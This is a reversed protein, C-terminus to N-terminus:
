KTKTKIAEDAQDFRDEAIRKLVFECRDFCRPSHLSRRAKTEKKRSM